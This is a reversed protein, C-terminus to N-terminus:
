SSTQVKKKKEPKQCDIALVEGSIEIENPQPDLCVSVEKSCVKCKALFRTESLIQFNSLSHNRFEATRKAEAMLPLAEFIGM